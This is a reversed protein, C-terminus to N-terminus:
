ARVEKLGKQLIGKVFLQGQKFSMEAHYPEYLINRFSLKCSVEKPDFIINTRYFEDFANAGAREERNELIIKVDFQKKQDKPLVDIKKFILKGGGVPELIDFQVDIATLQGDNKAFCRYHPTGAEPDGYEIFVSIFPTSQIRTLEKRMRYTEYTYYTLILATITLVIVEQKIECYGIYLGILLFLTAVIGWFYFSKVMNIEGAKRKIEKRSLGSRM